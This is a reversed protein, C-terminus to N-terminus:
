KRTWVIGDSETTTMTNGSITFTTTWPGNEEKEWWISLKNGEVKYIGTDSSTLVDRSNRYERRCCTMDANFTIETYVAQSSRKGETGWTGVIPNSSSSDDDGGCATFMVASMMLGVMLCLLSFGKNSIMKKM